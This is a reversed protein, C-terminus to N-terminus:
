AVYVMPFSVVVGVSSQIPDVAVGGQFATIEAPTLEKILFGVQLVHSGSVYFRVSASPAVEFRSGYIFEFIMDFVVM